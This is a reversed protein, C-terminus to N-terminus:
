PATIQNVPLGMMIRRYVEFDERSITAIFHISDFRVDLHVPKKTEANTIVLYDEQIATVKGFIIWNGFAIVVDLNEYTKLDDAFKTAM